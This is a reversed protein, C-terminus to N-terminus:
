GTAAGAGAAGGRTSVAAGTGGGGAGRGVQGAPITWTEAAGPAGPSAGRANQRSEAGTVVSAYLAHLSAPSQLRAAVSFRHGPIVAFSWAASSGSQRSRSGRAWALSGTFQMSRSM